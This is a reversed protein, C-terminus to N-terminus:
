TPQHAYRYGDNHQLRSVHRQRTTIKGVDTTIVFQGSSRVAVRGVYAGIYKGRPVKAEVIDGTRYGCVMSPGKALTRPFGYQDVRCMQRSGHGLAKATLPRMGKPIYVIDCAGGLVAADIFHDKPYGQRHRNYKTMYSPREVSLLGIERVEQIM